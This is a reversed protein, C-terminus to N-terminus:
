IELLICSVNLGGGYGLLIVKDKKKLMEAKRLESFAIPISACFTNGVNKLNTYIKEKDINLRKTISDLIRQNSQHPIIYKIEDISINNEVLIEEVIRVTETIAFKYVKNGDMNLIKSENDCTLIESGKAINRTKCKYLKEEDSAELLIAGAGDGFLIATNVDEQEIYESLKEVGIVLAKKVEELAIYKYAIDIGNPYGGCGCLLDLCICEETGLAKQVLQAIGPMLLKSSTTTVIILDIKSPEIDNNVLIKKSVKIAMEEIPEKAFYRKEIGTRGVIWKNDINFKKNYFENDIEIEPLYSESAVINVCKM